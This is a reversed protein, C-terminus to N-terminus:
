KKENARNVIAFIMMLVLYIHLLNPLGSFFNWQVIYGVIIAWVWPHNRTKIFIVLLILGFLVLGVIGNELLIELYQNQVIEAAHGTQKTYDLISQGAGGTGVGLLITWADKQWTKLALDSMKTREDTSKEVYGDFLAKAPETLQVENEKQEIKQPTEVPKPQNIEPLKIVGLSLQNVSKSVSDYFGDSLRPNLETFIGHITMGSAFSVVGVILLPALGQSIKKYNVALLVALALVLAFIAGRSLTLYMATLMIFLLWFDSRRRDAMFLRNAVIIIPAILLSGFFQPEITFVSPRVFGFGRALCGSCLGWDVWAGYVVQVVALISMLVASAVLIDVLIPALKGLRKSSLLSLFNIFLVTWIGATLVTRLPNSSWFISLWNVLVFAGVLWVARNKLLQHRNKFILPAGALALVVIYVLTLSLELNMGDSKGFHLNPYYSFWVMVPAMLLLVKEFLDLRLNALQELWAAIKKM